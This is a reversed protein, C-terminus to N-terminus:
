GWSWFKGVIENLVDKASQQLKQSRIHAAAGQVITQQVLMEFRCHFVIGRIELWGDIFFGEEWRRPLPHKLQFLKTTMTM